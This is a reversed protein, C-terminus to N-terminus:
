QHLDIRELQVVDVQQNGGDTTGFVQRQEFLANGALEIERKGTRLAQAHGLQEFVSLQLDARNVSVDLQVGAHEDIQGRLDGQHARFLRIRVAIEEGTGIGFIRRGDDLRRRKAVADDDRLHVLDGILQRSDVNGTRPHVEDDDGVPRERDLREEGPIRAVDGLQLYQHSHQHNAANILTM